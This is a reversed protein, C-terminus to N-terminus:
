SSRDLGGCDSPPGRACRWSSRSRGRRPGCPPRSVGAYAVLLAPRGEIVPLQDATRSLAGVAVVAAVAGILTLGVLVTLRSARAPPPGDFRDESRRAPWLATVACTAATWGLVVLVSALVDSPRHWRGVLTSVGTAAAYAAGLVGVWPRARAPVVLLLVVAISMAATTHGSPLSNDRAGVEVGLDPRSLLVHKVVQTTINAGGAVLAVQAALEWRRRVVAIVIATLLVVAIAGVSVVDLVKEAVRWLDTRGYWAGQLVAAEVLQGKETVVFVRWLAWVGVMSAAWVALCATVVPWRPRLGGPLPGAGTTAAPEDVTAVGSVM